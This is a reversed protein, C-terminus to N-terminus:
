ATRQRGPVPDPSALLAAGAVVAAFAAVRMAGLAGAPLGEHFLFMGALILLPQRRARVPCHVDSQAM